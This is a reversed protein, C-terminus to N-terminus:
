QNMREGTCLGGLTQAVLFLPKRGERPKGVRGKGIVQKNVLGTRLEHGFRVYSFSSPDSPYLYLYWPRTWGLM